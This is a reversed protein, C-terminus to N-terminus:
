PHGTGPEAEARVGLLEVESAPQWVQLMPFRSGFWALSLM